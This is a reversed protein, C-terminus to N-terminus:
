ISMLSLVRGEERQHLPTSYTGGCSVQSYYKKWHCFADQESRTHIHSVDDDHHYMSDHMTCLMVHGKARPHRGGIPARHRVHICPCRPIIYIMVLSDGSLLSGVLLM